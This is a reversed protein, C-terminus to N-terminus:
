YNRRRRPDHLVALWETWAGLPTPLDPLPEPEVAVDLELAELVERATLRDALRRNEDKVQALDRQLATILACQRSVQNELRTLLQPLAATEDLGWRRRLEDPLGRTSDESADRFRRPGPRPVTREAM